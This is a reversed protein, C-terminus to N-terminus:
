GHRVGKIVRDHGALDKIISIGTLGNLQELHKRLSAGQGEGMEMALLGGESLLPAWALSWSKLAALGQDEAFLAASPEFTKVHAEVRTDAPDIYPPNALLLDIGGFGTEEAIKAATDKSGADAEFTRLRDQVGLKEANKRTFQIAVPNTDLSILRAQPLAALLSLGICGSGSGLDAIRLDARGSAKAHDLATEVLHETEPRPILVGPGVDFTHNFFDKKGTLYAVPEGTGRRRVLERLKTLEPEALPRDFDLYLRIRDVGLGFAMILEADLRASPFGKDRFFGATKDLVDKLKM